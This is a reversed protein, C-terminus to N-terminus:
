KRKVKTLAVKILLLPLFKLSIGTHLSSTNPLLFASFNFRLKFNRFLSTILLKSFAVPVKSIDKGQLLEPSWVNPLHSHRTM